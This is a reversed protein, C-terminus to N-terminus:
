FFFDSEMLSTMGDTLQVMIQMDAAGGDVNMFVSQVNDESVSGFWVTGAQTSAEEEFTFTQNGSVRLNADLARFDFRDGEARSFDHVMEAHGVPAENLPDTATTASPYVFTDASDGGWINDAKAGGIITDNGYGGDIYDRGPTPGDDHDGFIKDNGSGGYLLDLGDGGWLEDNGTGGYLQDVGFGGELTDNGSGGRLIDNGELGVLEDDGAAGHAVDNGSGLFVNDNGSGAHVVDDGRGTRITDSGGQANISLDSDASSQNVNASSGGLNQFGSRAADQSFEQVREGYAEFFESEVYMVTTTTLM